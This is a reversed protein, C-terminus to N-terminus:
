AQPIGGGRRSGIPSCSTLVVFSTLRAKSSADAPAPPESGM